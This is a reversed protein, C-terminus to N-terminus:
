RMLTYTLVVQLDEDGRLAVQGMTFMDKATPAVYISRYQVKQLDGESKMYESWMRQIYATIDM